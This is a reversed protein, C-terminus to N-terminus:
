ISGVKLKLVEEIRENLVPRIYQEIFIKKYPGGIGDINKFRQKIDDAFPASANFKIDGGPTVLVTRSSHYFGNIFLNPVHQNRRPNPTIKDKWNSWALAAQIGGRQRGNKDTEYWYPDELYTPSIDSVGDNQKGDYMQERNLDNLDNEHEKMVGYIVEDINIKEFRQKMALITSM